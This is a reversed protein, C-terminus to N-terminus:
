PREKGSITKLPLLRRKAVLFSFVSFDCCNAFMIFSTHWKEIGQPSKCKQTRKLPKPTNKSTTKQEMDRVMPNFEKWCEAIKMGKGPNKPKSAAIETSPNLSNIFISQKIRRLKWDKEVALFTRNNWNVKHKKSRMHDEIENTKIQNKIDYEHQYKRAFIKKKRNRWHSM